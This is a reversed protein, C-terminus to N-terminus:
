RKSQQAMPYRKPLNAIKRYQLKGVYLIPCCCKSLQLPQPFKFGACMGMKCVTAFMWKCIAPSLFTDNIMFFQGPNPWSLTLKLWFGPLRVAPHALGVGAQGFLAPNEMGHATM